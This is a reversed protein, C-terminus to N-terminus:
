ERIYQRLKPYARLANEFLIGATEEATLGKIQAIAEVVYPLYASMNRRGRHPVPALYPSDTETVLYELPTESVVQKLTKGNKFTVVGGIGLYYGMKVYERAMEASGSYCHIIGPTRCAHHEKMLDFTDQAADRSHINVPLDLEIALELQRIMWRKQVEKPQVMWHYDLGIEGAAVCKPHLCLAHLEDMIRNGSLKEAEELEGVDDPHLGCAAYIHPWKEALAISDRAGRMSAGMNVACVIGQEPLSRIIEDRDEAFAKDDYHAHTDIIRM